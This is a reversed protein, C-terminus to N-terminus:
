VCGYRISRYAQHLDHRYVIHGPLPREVVSASKPSAPALSACIALVVAVAHNVPPINDKVVHQPSGASDVKSHVRTQEVM